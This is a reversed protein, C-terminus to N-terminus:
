GALNTALSSFCSCLSMQAGGNPQTINKYQKLITDIKLQVTGVGLEIRM